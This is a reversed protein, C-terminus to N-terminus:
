MISVEEKKPLDGNTGSGSLEERTDTDGITGTM